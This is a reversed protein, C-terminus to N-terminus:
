SRVGCTIVNSSLLPTVAGYQTADISTVACQLWLVDGGDVTRDVGYASIVVDESGVNNIIVTFEDGLSLSLDQITEEENEFELTTSAEFNNLVLISNNLTPGYLKFPITTLGSKCQSAVITGPCSTNDPTLTILRKDGDLLAPDESNSEGPWFVYILVAAVLLSLSLIYLYKYNM